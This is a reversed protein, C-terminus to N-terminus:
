GMYHVYWNFALYNVLFNFSGAVVSVLLARSTAGAWTYQLGARAVLGFYVLYVLGQLLGTSSGPARGTILFLTPLALLLILQFASGVVVVTLFSEAYNLKQRFAAHVIGAHAPLLLLWWINFYKGLGAFYTGVRALKAASVGQRLMGQQVATGVHEYYHLQTALLTSIGVALLLFQFPNFYRKRRGRLYDAVIRGPRTLVQGAYGFISKDAHTFVHVLEHM